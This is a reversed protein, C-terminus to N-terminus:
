APGTGGRATEPRARRKGFVAYRVAIIVLLLACSLLGAGSVVLQNGEPLCAPSALTDTFVDLSIHFLAVVLVSGRSALYLWTFPFSM